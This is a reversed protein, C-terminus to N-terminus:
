HSSMVSWVMAATYGELELLYPFLALGYEDGNADISKSPHGARGM